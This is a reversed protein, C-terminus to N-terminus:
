VISLAQFAQRLLQEPTQIYVRYCNSSWRGLTQILHDPLHVSAATTAAGIRFSHGAFLQPQLGLRALLTRLSTTFVDRNLPTREPLLFLPDNPTANMSKRVSFFQHLTSAPCSQNHTPFLRLEFGRRFQDTKSTKIRVSACDVQGAVMIFNVDGVCLNLKPNFTRANCTLESCRLFGFFALLFATELLLDFYPGFVGNRLLACLSKLIDGTIPLRPRTTSGQLRHIGRLVHQLRLYPQGQSTTLPNPLGGVIYHNRIGALYVKITMFKLHLFTACHAVFYILIDESIPPHTTSRGQIGFM